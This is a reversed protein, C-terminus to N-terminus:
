STSALAAFPHSTSSEGVPLWEDPLATDCPDLVHVSLSVNLKPPLSM